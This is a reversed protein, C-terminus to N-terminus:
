QFEVLSDVLNLKAESSRESTIFNQKESRKEALENILSNNKLFRCTEYHVLWFPAQNQLMNYACSVTYCM